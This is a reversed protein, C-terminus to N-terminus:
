HDGGPDSERGIHRSISLPYYWSGWKKEVGDFSLVKIHQVIWIVLRTLITTGFQQAYFIAMLMAM